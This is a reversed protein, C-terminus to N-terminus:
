TRIEVEIKSRSTTTANAHHHNCIRSIMMLCILKQFLRRRKRKKKIQMSNTYNIMVMKSTMIVTLLTQFMILTLQATVTATRMMM